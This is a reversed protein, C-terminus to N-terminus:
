IEKNKSDQLEFQKFRNIDKLLNTIKINFKNNEVSCLKNNSQIRSALEDIM